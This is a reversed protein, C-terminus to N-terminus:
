LIGEARDLVSQAEMLNKVTAQIDVEGNSKLVLWPKQGDKNDWLAVTMTYGTGMRNPGCVLDGQAGVKGAELIRDYCNKRIERMLGKTDEKVKVRFCLKSHDPKDRNIELQLYLEVDHGCSKVTKYYWWFGAFGGSQNPVYNWGWPPHHPRPKIWDDTWCNIPNYKNVCDDDFGVLPNDRDFVVLHEELKRFFGECSRYSVKGKGDQGWNEYSQTDDELSKLHDRFDDLIPHADQYPEVVKWFDCRNFVKYPTSNEIRMRDFLSQNGTKLYIPLINEKGVKEAETKGELVKKYYRNLQDSHDKTGTKDEILLVYEGISSLVDINNDQLWPKPKESVQRIKKGHKAFLAEIFKQGCERLRERGPEDHYAWEILWCIVADQSLEKTAYNFINPKGTTEYM